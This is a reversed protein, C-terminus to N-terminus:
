CKRDLNQKRNILAEKNVVNDPLEGGLVSIASESFLRKQLASSEVSDFAIHPTLTVNDFSLIPADPQFQPNCEIVDLGSSGVKGNELACVLDEENILPGRATNIIIVGDKMLDFKEKDIMHFTTDNLPLHLSIIDSRRYLEEMDVRKIGSELFVSDPLYPDCSLLTCAFGRLYSAVQRSIRGFGVLGVTLASLRHTLIHPINDWNGQKVINNRLTVSRLCDLMLAITHTAVDETCYNPINCVAIGMETAANIDVADYGVGYRVIVKCNNLHTIVNRTLQNIGIYLIGDADAGQQIMEEETKCSAYVLDIGNERFLAEGSSFDQVIEEVYDLFVVKM